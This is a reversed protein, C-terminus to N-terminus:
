PRPRPSGVPACYPAAPERGAALQADARLVQGLLRAAGVMQV